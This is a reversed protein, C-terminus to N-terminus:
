IKNLVLGSISFWVGFDKDKALDDKAMDDQAMNDKVLDDKVLRSLM